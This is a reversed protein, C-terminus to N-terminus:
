AIRSSCKFPELLVQNVRGTRKTDDTILSVSELKFTLSLSPFELIFFVVSVILPTM